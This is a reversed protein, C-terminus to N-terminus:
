AFADHLATSLREIAVTLVDGSHAASMFAAEFPSPALYVGRVLAAHFFRRYREVDSRKADAYSQVPRDSFFLGWMSGVQHVEVPIGRRKAVHRLEVVLEGTCRAIEAHTEPTLERLTAAGAAMAVPNGSLTGAQYVPGIPAVQEMVDRRGGYAAVPLGGGIVKGLTTLDPTVGYRQTAGGPAVRFGTMVEDFILLAGCDDAARRLSPLFEPFPTILGANGIVPEVIIAALEDGRAAILERVALTDNYPASATLAAL